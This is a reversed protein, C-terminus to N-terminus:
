TNIKKNKDNFFFAPGYLKSSAGATGIPHLTGFGILFGSQVTVVVANTFTSGTRAPCRILSGMILPTAQPASM